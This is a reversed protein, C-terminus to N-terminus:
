KKSKGFRKFIGFSYFWSKYNVYGRFDIDGFYGGNADISWGKKGLPLQLGLGVSLDWYNTKLEVLDQGKLYIYNEHLYGTFGYAYPKLFKWQTLYFRTNFHIGFLKSQNNSELKVNRFIPMAGIQWRDGFHHNAYLAMTIGGAFPTVGVGVSWNGEAQGFSNTALYFVFLFSVFFTKM